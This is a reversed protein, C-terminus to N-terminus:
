VKNENTKVFFYKEQFLELFGDAIDPNISIYQLGLLGIIEGHRDIL